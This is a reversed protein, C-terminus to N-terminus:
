TYEIKYFDNRSTTLVCYKHRKVDYGIYKALNDEISYIPKNALILIKYKTSGHQYKQCKICNYYMVDNQTKNHEKTHEKTHEAQAFNLVDQYIKINEKYEKSNLFNDEFIIKNM